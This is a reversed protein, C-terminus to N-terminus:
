KRALLMAVEAVRRGVNKATNMGAEDATVDRGTRRRRGVRNRGLTGHAPRRRRRDDAPEDAGSAGLPDDTGPRRQTRRRGGGRRGGQQGVRVEQPVRHLPRPVGQLAFCMNGFYVPTGFIIGAVKPDLLKPALQPFDDKEGEALPVGAAVEGPIKLGALEILEIEVGPDAAKAAELSAKLVTATTKGKRPSCCIGIIKDAKGEAAEATQATLAAGVGAVAAVTGAKELFGRRTVESPM